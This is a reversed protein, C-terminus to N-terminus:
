HLVPQKVKRWLWLFPRLLFYLAYLRKPLPLTKLDLYGPHLRSITYLMKHRTSKLAKLYNLYYKKAEETEPEPHINEMREIFFLASQALEMTRNARLLPMMEETIKVQLLQLALIVAQGGVHLNDSSKFLKHVLEWELPQKLMQQVDILWRLRFWGHRAGHTILYHFLDEKGLFYVPYKTVASKRRRKWLEQFSTEKGPGPSLRWHIELKRHKEPHFYCIHHNRWKWENFVSELVDKKEYGQNLLLKEAQEIHEIPILVDLDTSTRLSIDGYLDYAIAPGKLFLTNIGEETFLKSIQEMDASLQLMKFTNLKYQENLIQMVNTPVPYDQLMQIRSSLLPYVRHHFAYELFLNWDVGESLVQLTQQNAGESNEKLLELLFLVEKPIQTLNLTNGM